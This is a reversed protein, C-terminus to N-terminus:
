THRVVLLIFNEKKFHRMEAFYPVLKLVTNNKNEGTCIDLFINFAAGCVRDQIMGNMKMIKM